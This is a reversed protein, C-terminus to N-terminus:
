KKDQEELGYSIPAKANAIINTSGHIGAKTSNHEMELLVHVPVDRENLSNCRTGSHVHLMSGVGHVLPYM